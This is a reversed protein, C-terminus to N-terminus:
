KTMVNSAQTEEIAQEIKGQLVELAEDVRKSEERAKGAKLVFKKTQENVRAVNQLVDSVTTLQDSLSQIEARINESINISRTAASELRQELRNAAEDIINFRDEMDKKAKVIALTTDLLITNSKIAANRM